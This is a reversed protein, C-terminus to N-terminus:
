PVQCELGDAADEEELADLDLACSDQTQSDPEALSQQLAECNVATDQAHCTCLYDVYRDCPNPDSCALWVLWM